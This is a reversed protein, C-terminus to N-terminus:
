PQFRGQGFQFAADGLADAQEAGEDAAAQAVRRTHDQRREDADDAHHGVVRRVCAIHHNDRQRGQDEGGGTAM